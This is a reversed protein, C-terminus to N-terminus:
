RYVEQRHGLKVVYVVHVADEIAHVVRYDGVTASGGIVLRHKEV